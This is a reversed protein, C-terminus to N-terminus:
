GFQPPTMFTNRSPLYRLGDRAYALLREREWGKAVLEEILAPTIEEADPQAFISDFRAESSQYRDIANRLEELSYGLISRTGITPKGTDVVFADQVLRFTGDWAITVRGDNVAITPPFAEGRFRLCLALNESPELVWADGQCTYLILPQDVLEPGTVILKGTGKVAASMIRKCEALLEIVVNDVGSEKLCEMVHHWHDYGAGKAVRNLLDAHKGGGARQLKKAKKRLAEVTDPTTPIYRM